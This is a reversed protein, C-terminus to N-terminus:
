PNEELANFYAELIERFEEPLKTLDLGGSKEVGRGDPPAGNESGTSNINPKDTTGGANSGGGAGAGSGMGQQMGMAAMLMQMMMGNGQGSCSNISGSLLEIIETEIAITESDTQPRQLFIRANMMEGGIKEIFLRLKKNRTKRELPRIDQALESQIVSLKRADSDYKRNTDKTKELLRTQERLSEERQRARLLAILIEIEIEEPSGNCSGDSNSEAEDKLMKAWETLQDKWLGAEEIAKVGINKEILGVLAGLRDVVEMKLMEEYITNYIQKRTRNYFGALDDQISNVKNQANKQRSASMDLEEKKGAPLDDPNIGVMEPLSEKMFTEIKQESSAALLLRNIFNLALMDEISSNMGQEMQRLKELIERELGIAEKLKESRQAQDKGAQKLSQSSQKMEESALSKMSDFLEAWNRMTGEPIDKNRLAEKLLDEGNKALQKLHEMNSQESRESDKLTETTKKDALEEPSLDNLGKNDELLNEERRTIDELEAQLAEMQQQILKAHQARSLVYIRYALSMAPKRGPFYDTAYSYLTVMTEEPVHATIPSFSFSGTLHTTYPTGKKIVHTGNVEALGREKNSDSHWNIWMERIGYDDETNIELEVVEDELMAISRGIGRCELMPPEDQVIVTNLVHPQACTLGFYDTWSFSCTKLTDAYLEASLFRNSAVNLVKDSDQKMVASELARSITGVLLVKSGELFEARGNKVPMIQAPRQLYSPLTIQANMQILEPRFVPKVLMNKTADGIRIALIGPATQGPIRFVAKGSVIRATIGPQNEMRCSANEPRWRSWKTLQCCIEFDEGHPVIQEDPMNEISVFTYREITSFPRIWRILTNRGAEPFLLILTFIIVVAVVFSISYIRPRRAEVAKKFDYKETERAVQRIAARCLAPSINESVATGNALEVVGLLRDGLRNYQKQILQALKKTDRRGWWWHRLWLLAFLAFSIAGLITLPIRLWVPTDWIRDSVFLLGYTLLIGCLGGFVTVCTEVICLRKEFARLQQVLSEPLKIDSKNQEFMIDNWDTKKRGLLDGFSFCYARGVISSVM